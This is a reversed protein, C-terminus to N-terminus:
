REARSPLKLEYVAALDDNVYRDEVDSFRELVADLLPLEVVSGTAVERVLKLDKLASEARVTECRASPACRGVIAELCSVDRVAGDCRRRRLQWRASQRVLAGGNPSRWCCRRTRSSARGLPRWSPRV